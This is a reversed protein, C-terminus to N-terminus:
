PLLVRFAAGGGPRDEVWARGGHLAAFQAVLALGLGTGPSYPRLSEGQRFPEFIAAKLEDPVGPGDDEVSLLVGDPTRCARVWATTGAPTHRLVNALLHELIREVKAVDFRAVLPEDRVEVVVNDSQYAIRRVLPGLNEETRKLHVVGRTLRDVDLLDELLQDLRHANDTLQQFLRQQTERALDARRDLIAAIGIVAALPTRMEHSVASLFSNKMEDLAQLQAAAADERDLTRRLFQETRRRETIDRIIATFVDGTPTRGHALSLEIPFESGDRRMAEVEVVSGILRSTGTVAFRAFGARHAPRLREPMLETLRMGAMEGPQYGFMREAAPNAYEVAGARNAIVIGDHATEAVSRFREGSAALEEDTRLREWAHGLQTAVLEIAGGCGGPAEGFFEIVAEIRGFVRVPVALGTVLGCETAAKRRRFGEDSALDAIPVPADAEAVRGPLGEGLDYRTGTTATRFDEYREGAHWIESSVLRQGYRLYAHGVTWGSHECALDVVRQLADPVNRAVDLAALTDRLMALETEAAM